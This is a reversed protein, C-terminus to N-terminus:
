KTRTLEITGPNNNTIEGIIFPSYGKETLDSLIAKSYKSPASCLLGGSVQADFLYCEDIERASIRGDLINNVYRRNHHFIQTKYPDLISDLSKYGVLNDQWIVASKKSEKLIEHLHGMLGYGTVDTCANIPYESLIKSADKNSRKMGELVDSHESSSAEEFKWRLSALSTGLPKTLILNDGCQASAHPIPKNKWPTGVASFGLFLDEQDALTHGGVLVAGEERLKSNAGQMMSLVKPDNASVGSPLGLVCLSFLARAGTAYLDSLVHAVTIEGFDAPDLTMPLVVDVSSVLTTNNFEFIGSDSFTCDIPKATTNKNEINMSSLLKQLQLAPVKKSCGGHTAYDIFRTPKM